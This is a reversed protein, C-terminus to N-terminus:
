KVLMLYVFELSISVGLGNRIISLAKTIHGEVTRQSINLKEAIEKNTLQENRSLLFVTKCKSPLSDIISELHVVLEDYLIKTEPSLNQHAEFINEPLEVTVRNKNKRFYDYVKYVTSTYLYSKLSTNIKLETRKDWLKVFVDQVIDESIQENKVVNFAALYMMEWYKKYILTLANADGKNLSVILDKESTM